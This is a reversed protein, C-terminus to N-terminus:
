RGGREKYDEIASTISQHYHGWFTSVAGDVFGGMWTVYPEYEAGRVALVAWENDGVKTSSVVTAGNPLTSGVKIDTVTEEEFLAETGCAKCGAFRAFPPWERDASVILRGGNDTFQQAISGYLVNGGKAFRCGPEHVTRKFVSISKGDREEGVTSFTYRLDM